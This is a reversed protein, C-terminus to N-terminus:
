ERMEIIVPTSDNLYLRVPAARDSEITTENGFLPWPAIADAVPRNEEYAVHLDSVAFLSAPM